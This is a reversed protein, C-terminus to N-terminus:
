QKSLSRGRDIIPVKNNQESWEKILKYWLDKYKPDKTKNYDRAAQDIRYQLTLM